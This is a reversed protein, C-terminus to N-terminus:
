RPSIRRGLPNLNRRPHYRQFSWQNPKSEARRQRPSPRLLLLSQEASSTWSGPPSRNRLRRRSRLNSTRQSLKLSPSLMKLGQPPRRYVPSNTRPPLPPPPLSQTRQPGRGNSIQENRYLSVNHTLVATIPSPRLKMSQHESRHNSRICRYFRRWSEKGHGSSEERARM